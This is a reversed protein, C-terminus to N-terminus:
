EANVVVCRDGLDFRNKVYTPKHKGRIYVAIMRAMRGLNM